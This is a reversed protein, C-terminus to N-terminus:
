PLEGLAIGEDPRGARRTSSATATGANRRNWHTFMLWEEKTFHSQRARESRGSRRPLAGHKRRHGQAPSPKQAPSEGHQPAAGAANEGRLEGLAIGRGRRATNIISNRDWREKQEQSCSGNRRRSIHSGRREFLDTYIDDSFEPPRGDLEQIHRLAFALPRAPDGARSAGERIEPAGRVRAHAHGSCAGSATRLKGTHIVADDKWRRFDLFLLATVPSYRYDFGPGNGGSEEVLQMAYFIARDVIFDQGGAPAGRPVAPRAPGHLPHRVHDTPKRGTGRGEGQRAFLAGHRARRARKGLVDNTVAVLTDSSSGDPNLAKKFAVDMGLDAFERGSYVARPEALFDYMGGFYIASAPPVVRRKRGSKCSVAVRRLLARKTTSLIVNVHPGSASCM